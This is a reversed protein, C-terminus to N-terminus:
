LPPGVAQPAANGAPAAPSLGLGSGSVSTGTGTTGAILGCLGVSQAGTGAAPAPIGGLTTASTPLNALNGVSSLLAGGVGPSQTLAGNAGGLSAAGLLQNL